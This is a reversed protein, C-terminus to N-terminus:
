YKRRFAKRWFPKKMSYTKASFSNASDAACQFFLEVRSETPTPNSHILEVLTNFLELIKPEIDLNSKTALIVTVNLDIKISFKSQM